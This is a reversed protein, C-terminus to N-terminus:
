ERVDEEAIIEGYEQDKVVKVDSLENKGNAERSVRELNKQIEKNNQLAYQNLTNPLESKEQRATENLHTQYLEQEGKDLEKGNKLKEKIQEIALDREIKQRQQRSQIEQVNQEKEAHNEQSKENENKYPNFESNERNPEEKSKRSRLQIKSKRKKFEEAKEKIKDRINMRAVRAFIAVVIGKALGKTMRNIIQNVKSNAKNEDIESNDQAEQEQIEQDATQEIEQVTKDSYEAIQEADIETSDINGGRREEEEAKDMGAEVKARNMKGLKYLKNLDLKGGDFAFQYNPDFRILDIMQSLLETDHNKNATSILLAVDALHYNDRSQIKKQFEQFQMSRMKDMYQNLPIAKIEYESSEIGEQLMSITDEIKKPSTSLKKTERNRLVVVSVKEPSIPTEASEQRDKVNLYVKDNDSIDQKPQKSFGDKLISTLSRRNVLYINQTNVTSM